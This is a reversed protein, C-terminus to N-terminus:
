HFGRNRVFSLGGLGLLLVTAPEPIAMAGPAPEVLLRVTAGTTFRGSPWDSPEPLYAIFGLISTRNTKILTSSIARTSYHTDPALDLGKPQFAWGHSDSPGILAGVGVLAGTGPTSVGNVSLLTFKVEYKDYMSVDMGALAGAGHREWSVYEIRNTPHGKGPFHIDFEVGPGPVDRQELVSTKDHYFSHDDPWDLLMLGADSLTINVGMVPAASLGVAAVILTALVFLTKKRM